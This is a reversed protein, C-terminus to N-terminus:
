SSQLSDIFYNYDAIINEGIQDIVFKSIGYVFKDCVYWHVIRFDGISWNNSTDNNITIYKYKNLNEYYKWVKRINLKKCNKNQEM